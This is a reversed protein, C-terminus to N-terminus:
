ISAEILRVYLSGTLGTLESLASPITGTLQTLGSSAGMMRNTSVHVLMAIDALVVRSSM